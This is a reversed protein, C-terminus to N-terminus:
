GKRSCIFLPQQVSWISLFCSTGGIYQYINKKAYNRTVYLQTCAVCDKKTRWIPAFVFDQSLKMGAVNHSWWIKLDIKHKRCVENMVQAVLKCNHFYHEIAWFRLLYGHCGKQWSRTDSQTEPWHAEVESGRGQRDRSGLDLFVNNINFSPELNKTFFSFQYGQARRGRQLQKLLPGRFHSPAGGPRSPGPVPLPLLWTWTSSSSKPSFGSLMTLLLVSCRKLSNACGSTWRRSFEVRSNTSASPWCRSVKRALTAAFNFTAYHSRGYEIRWVLHNLCGHLWRNHLDM